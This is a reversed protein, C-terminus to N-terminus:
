SLNNGLHGGFLELIARAVVLACVRVCGRVGVWGGVYGRVWGCMWSPGLYKNKDDFFSYVTPPLYISGESGHSKMLIGIMM